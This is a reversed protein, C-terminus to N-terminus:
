KQDEVYDHNRMFDEARLAGGSNEPIDTPFLSLYASVPLHKKEPEESYFSESKFHKSEDAVSSPTNNLLTSETKTTNSSQNQHKISKRKRSNKPADLEMVVFIYYREPGNVYRKGKDTIRFYRCLGGPRKENKEKEESLFKNSELTDIFRKANNESLAKGRGFIPLKTYDKSEAIELFTKSLHGRYLGVLSTISLRCPVSKMSALVALAEGSVDVCYSSHQQKSVKGKLAKNSATAAKNNQLNFFRKLSIREYGQSFVNEADSHYQKENEDEFFDSSKLYDAVLNPDYEDDDFSNDLLSPNMREAKASDSISHVVPALPVPTPSIESKHAAADYYDKKYQGYMTYADPFLLSSDPLVNAFDSTKFSSREYESAAEGKEGKVFLGTIADVKLNQKRQPKYESLSEENRAFLEDFVNKKESEASELKQPRHPSIHPSNKQIYPMLEAMFQEKPTRTDPIAKPALRREKELASYVRLGSFSIPKKPLTTQWSQNMFYRKLDHLNPPKDNLKDTKLFYRVEELTRQRTVTLDSPEGLASSYMDDMHSAGKSTLVIQHQEPYTKLDAHLRSWPDRTGRPFCINTANYNIPIGYTQQLKTVQEQIHGASIPGGFVDICYKQVSGQSLIDGFISNGIDTTQFYGLENCTLWMWGRWASWEFDFSVNQMYAVNRQYNVDMTKKTEDYLYIHCPVFQVVQAAREMRSGITDDNMMECARSLKPTGGVESHPWNQAACDFGLFVANFLMRFDDPDAKLPPDIRFVSSLQARGEEFLTANRIERFALKVNQYCDESTEKIDNEVVDAYEWYNVKPSMAPYSGGFAVWKPNTLNEAKPFGEIFSVVDALAQDVTLYKLNDVSLDPMNKNKGFFRHELMVVIANNEDASRMFTMNDTCIWAWKMEWEGGIMLFVPPEKTANEPSLRKNFKWNTFYRQGYTRSDSSNLHDLQQTFWKETIWEKNPCPEGVDFGTPSLRKQASYALSPPTLFAHQPTPFLVCGIFIILKLKCPNQVSIVM